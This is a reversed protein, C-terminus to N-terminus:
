FNDKWQRLAAFVQVPDSLARGAHRSASAALAPEATRLFPNAALEVALHSPLTPRGRELAARASAEREAVAPNDPDAARAFRLNSLTYEHACFVLTEPPLAALRSLSAHMQAATGEFLRGCGCSFLTDGCFLLGEGYYAIHGSTHGPVDIVRFRLELGPVVIEDDHSLRHVIGPISERSPGFVPVSYKALLKANGGVHDPHHHTALIARLELGEAALYDLVPAADGPDVVAALGDRRLCWIYNDKFARIPAITVPNM